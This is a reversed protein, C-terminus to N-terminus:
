LNKVRPTKWPMPNASPHLHAALSVWDSLLAALDSPSQSEWAKLRLWTCKGGVSHGWYLFGVRCTGSRMTRNAVAVKWLSLLPCKPSSIRCVPLLHGARFHNPATLTFVSFLFFQIPPLWNLIPPCPYLHIPLQLGWAPNVSALFLFCLVPSFCFHSERLGLQARFETCNM